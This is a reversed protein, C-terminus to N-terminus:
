SEMTHLLVASLYQASNSSISELVLFDQVESYSVAGHDSEM